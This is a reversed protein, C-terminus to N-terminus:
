KKDKFIISYNVEGFLHRKYSKTGFDYFIVYETGDTETYDIIFTTARMHPLYAETIFKDLRIKPTRLHNPFEYVDVANLKLFPYKDSTVGPRTSSSCIVVIEGNDRTDRSHIIIENIKYKSNNVYYMLLHEGIQGTIRGMSTFLGIDDIKIPIEDAYITFPMIMLLVIVMLACKVQRM